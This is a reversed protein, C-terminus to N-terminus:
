SFYRLILKHRRTDNKNYKIKIDNPCTMQFNWLWPNFGLWLQSRCQLQPLAVDKLVSCWALSQVCMEAAVLVM